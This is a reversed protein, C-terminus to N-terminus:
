PACESACVANQCEILFNAIGAPLDLSIFSNLVCSQDGSSCRAAAYWEPICNGRVTGQQCEDVSVDEGCFCGVPGRMTNYACQDPSNHSCFFVTSCAARFAPDPANELCPGVLDIGSYDACAARVCRQCASSVFGHEAADAGADTLTADPPLADSAADTIAADTLAADPQPAGSEVAGAEATAADMAPLGADMPPTGPITPSPGAPPADDVCQVVVPPRTTLPCDKKGVLYSIAYDGAAPCTFETQRAGPLAFPESSEPADAVTPTSLWLLEGGTIVARVETSEGVHLKLPHDVLMQVALPCDSALPPPQPGAADEGAQGADCAQGGLSWGGDEACRVFELKCSPTCGDGVRENGDDCHEDGAAIADGCLNFRCAGDICHRDAGCAEGDPRERCSDAGLATADSAEAGVVSQVTTTRAAEECGTLQMAALAAAAAALRTGLRVRSRIFATSRM